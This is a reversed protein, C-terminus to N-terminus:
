RAIGDELHQLIEITVIEGTANKEQTRVAHTIGPITHTSFQMDIVVGRVSVITGNM